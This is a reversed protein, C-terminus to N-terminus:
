QWENEPLTGPPPKLEELGAEILAIEDMVTRIVTAPNIGSVAQLEDLVKRRHALLDTLARRNRVKVHGAVIMEMARSVKRESSTAEPEQRPEAWETSSLERETSLGTADGSMSPQVQLDRLEPKEADRRESVSPSSGQSLPGIDATVPEVNGIQVRSIEVTPNFTIERLPPAEMQPATRHQGHCHKFRKGSGCPCPANRKTLGDETEVDNPESAPPHVNSNEDVVATNLENKLEAELSQRIAALQAFIDEVM